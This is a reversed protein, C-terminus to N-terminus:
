IEYSVVKLNNTYGSMMKNLILSLRFEKTYNMSTYLYYRFKDMSRSSLVDQNYENPSQINTLILINDFPISRRNAPTDSVIVKSDNNICYGNDLLVQIYKPIIDSMKMKGKYKVMDILYENNNFSYIKITNSMNDGKMIFKPTEM